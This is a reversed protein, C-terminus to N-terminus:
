GGLPGQLACSPKPDTNHIRQLHRKDPRVILWVSMLIHTKMKMLFFITPHRPLQQTHNINHLTFFIVFPISWIQKSFSPLHIVINPFTIACQSIAMCNKAAMDASNNGIMRSPTPPHIHRLLPLLHLKYTFSFLLLLFLFICALMLTYFFFLIINFFPSPLSPYTSLYLSLVLAMALLLNPHLDVFSLQMFSLFPIFLLPFFYFVLFLM